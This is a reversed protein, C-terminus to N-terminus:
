AAVGCSPTEYTQRMAEIEAKLAEMKRNAWERDLEIEMGKAADEVDESVIFGRAERCMICGDHTLWIHDGAEFTRDDSPKTVIYRKGVEM